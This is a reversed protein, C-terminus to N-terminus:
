GERHIPAAPAARDLKHEEWLALPWLAFRELGGLVAGPPKSGLGGWVPKDDLARMLGVGLTVAGGLLYLSLNEGIRM